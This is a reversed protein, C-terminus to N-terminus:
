RGEAAPQGSERAAAPRTTEASELPFGADDDYEGAERVLDRYCEIDLVTLAQLARTIVIRRSWAAYELMAARLAEDLACAAEDRRRQCHVALSITRGAEPTALLARRLKGMRDRTLNGLSEAGEVYADVKARRERGAQTLWACGARLARQLRQLFSEKEALIRESLERASEEATLTSRLSNYDTVYATVLARLVEGRRAVLGGTPDISVLYADFGEDVWGREALFLRFRRLDRLAAARLTELPKRESELAGIFDLDEQYTPCDDQREFGPLRLGLYELDVAARLKLAEMFFPKRMRNIKRKAVEFPAVRSPQSRPREDSGLIDRVIRLVDALGALVARMAAGVLILPLFLFLAGGLYRQFLRYPNFSRESRPLLHYPRTGFVDRVVGRRDRRLAALVADGFHLRVSEEFVPDRTLFHLATFEATRLPLGLCHMAKGARREVAVDWRAERARLFAEFRRKAEPPANPLDALPICSTNYELILKATEIALSETIFRFWFYPGLGLLRQKELDLRELSRVQKRTMGLVHFRVDQIGLSGLLQISTKDDARHLVPGDLYDRYYLGVLACEEGHALFGDAPRACLDSLSIAAATEDLKRKWVELSPGNPERIKVECALVHRFLMPLDKARRSLKWTKLLPYFHADATRLYIDLAEGAIRKIWRGSLMLVLCVSGLILLPWGLIKMLADAASELFGVRHFLNEILRAAGRIALALFAFSLLRVAPRSTAAIMTTGLRDLIQPGTTIGALDGWFRLVFLVSQLMQGLAHSAAAAAEAPNRIRAAPILRRILPGHRILPVDFFRLWRAVRAVGDHGLAALARSADCDLLSRIVREVHVERAEEALEPVYPLREAARLRAEVELASLYRALVAPRRSAPLEAFLHAAARRRREELELVRRRQPDESAESLPEAEFFIIERDLSSRFKEVARDTGRVFFVLIRFVRLIVLLVGRLSLLRVLVLARAEEIAAFRPLSEINHLLFGYPLAPLSEFFFHRLFYKGSWRAFAWRVFFDWQFLLCLGIDAAHVWPLWHSGSALQSEVVLLGLFAFVLLFIFNEFREVRRRGFFAELAKRAGAEREANRARKRCKVLERLDRRASPSGDSDEAESELGKRWPELLNLFADIRGRLAALAPLREEPRSASGESLVASAHDLLDAAAKRTFRRADALGATALARSADGLIAARRARLGALDESGLPAGSRHVASEIDFSEEVRRWDALGRRLDSGSAEEQADSRWTGRRPEADSRLFRALKLASLEARLDEVKRLLDDVGGALTADIRTCERASREIWALENEVFALPDRSLQRGAAASLSILWRCEEGAEFAAIAAAQAADGPLGRSSGEEIAVVRAEVARIARAIAELRQPGDLRAIQDIRENRSDELARILAEPVALGGRLLDLVQRDLSEETTGPERM